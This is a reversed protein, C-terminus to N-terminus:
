SLERSALFEAWQLDHPETIKINEKNGDIMRINIGLSEVVSADDTFNPKYDQLYAKKLIETHFCQPTQVIRYESRNVTESTKENIKRLTENVPVVPIVAEFTSLTKIANKLVTDDVFPRVADHVLVWEQDVLALANKVSHFREKGGKCLKIQEKYELPAILKEAESIYAEPLVLVFTAEPIIRSFVDLTHIFVPKGHLNLFQKPQKTQMRKGIGGATIIVGISQNM